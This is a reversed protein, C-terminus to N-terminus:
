AASHVLLLPKGNFVLQKGDVVCFEFVAIKLFQYMQMGFGHLFNERCKYLKAPHETIENRSQGRKDTCEHNQQRQEADPKRFSALSKDM